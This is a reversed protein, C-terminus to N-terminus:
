LLCSDWSHPLTFVGVAAGMCFNCIERPLRKRDLLTEVPSFTITHTKLWQKCVMALLSPDFGTHMLLWNFIVLVDFTHVSTSKHRYSSFNPVNHSGDPEQWTKAPTEEGMPLPQLASSSPAHGTSATLTTGTERPHEQRGWSQSHGTMPMVMILSLGSGAVRKQPLVRPDLPKLLHQPMHAPYLLNIPKCLYLRVARPLLLLVAGTSIFIGSCFVRGEQMAQRAM